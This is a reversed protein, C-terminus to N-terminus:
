KTQIRNTKGNDLNKLIAQAILFNEYNNSRMLEMILDFEKKPTLVRSVIMSDHVVRGSNSNPSTAYHIIYKFEIYVDYHEWTENSVQFNIVQSKLGDEM